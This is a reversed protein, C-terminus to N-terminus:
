SWTTNVSGAAVVGPWRVILPTRLSEEYMWRKDFWGHDGLFFGQDSTYVVVTNDRPRSRRSPRAGASTRRRAGAVVRM